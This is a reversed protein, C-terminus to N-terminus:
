PDFCFMTAKNAFHFFVTRYSLVATYVSLLLTCSV